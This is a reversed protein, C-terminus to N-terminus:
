EALAADLLEDLAKECAPRDIIYSFGHEADPVTLLRKWPAGCESYLRRSMDCPVFDDAEGHVFLIPYPCSKLADDATAEGLDFGGFLLAGTRALAYGLRAPLHAAAAVSEIIGRPSSFGCDAVVGAVNGPLPLACAMMVTSAGMSIGEIIAKQGPFRSQAWEAWTMVDYREKIGFTMVRGESKGQAREDVFLAGINHKLFYELACSFDNSASSKWGHFLLVVARQEPAPFFRGYLTLGDRSTVTVEECQQKEAYHIGAWITDAYVSYRGEPPFTMQSFERPKSRRFANRYLLYAAILWLAALALIIWIFIM